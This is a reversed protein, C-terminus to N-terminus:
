SLMWVDQPWITLGWFHFQRHPIDLLIAQRGQWQLYPMIFFLVYLSSAYWKYNRFRGRMRKAHITEDGTNVHWHTADAYVDEVKNQQQESM